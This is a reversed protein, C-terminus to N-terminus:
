CGRSICGQVGNSVVTPAVPLPAALAVISVAAIAFAKAAGASVLMLPALDSFAVAAPVAGLAAPTILSVETLAPARTPGRRIASRILKPALRRWQRLHMKADGCSCLTANDVSVHHGHWALAVFSLGLQITRRPTLVIVRHSRLQRRQTLCACGTTSGKCSGGPAQKRVFPRRWNQASPPPGGFAWPASPPHPTTLRCETPSVVVARDRM